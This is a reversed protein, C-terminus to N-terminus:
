KGELLAWEASTLSRAPGHNALDPDILQGAMRTSSSATSSSVRPPPRPCWEKCAKVEATVVDSNRLPIM